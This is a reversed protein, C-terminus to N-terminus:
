WRSSLLTDLLEQSGTYYLTTSAPPLQANFETLHHGLLRNNFLDYVTEARKPLKFTRVGGSVSHASLLDSTAYLVDGAESYIHVGAFRAIGRLVPSPVNPTAIYVSNWASQPTEPHYTKVGFGPKCRGLAYVV